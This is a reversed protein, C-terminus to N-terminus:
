KKSSRKMKIGSIFFTLGLLGYVVLINTYAKCGSTHIFFVAYFILGLMGLVTLLEGFIKDNVQRSAKLHRKAENKHYEAALRHDEIKKREEISSIRTRKRNNKKEETIM